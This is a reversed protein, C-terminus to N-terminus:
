FPAAARSRTRSGSSRSTSSTWTRSSRPVLLAHLSEFRGEVGGAAGSAPECGARRSTPSCRRTPRARASRTSCRGARSASTDSAVCDLKIGTDEFGTCDTPKASASRSRRRGIRTLNWSARIPKPPGFSARLLGAEVAPAVVRRGQRRDQTRSGTKRPSCQGVPPRLQGRRRGCRSGTSAPPRWRWRRSGHAELWDHLVLLGGVTTKFERVEQTRSGDPAPVRVCATVQEKHVDLAAPRQM